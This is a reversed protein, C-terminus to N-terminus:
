LLASRPRASTAHRLARGISSGPASPTIYMRTFSAIETPLLEVQEADCDGSSPRAKSIVIAFNILEDVTLEGDKDVDAMKFLKCAVGRGNVVRRFSDVTLGSEGCVLYAVTELLDV